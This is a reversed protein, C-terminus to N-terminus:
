APITRKEASPSISAESLLDVLSINEYGKLEYTPVDNLGQELEHVTLETIKGYFLAKSINEASQTAQSGHVLTTVESALRRQAAREWPKSEVEQQLSNIEDKSIFTFYKLFQIVDRDDANMWFQYFQYPSTRNSDLWITVSETKGLKKGDAQTILPLTLGFVTNGTVRRILDVGATINGWQDSGGSQLECGYHENLHLFDYSQLVMYSFETYSIGAELRSKVSDKALM